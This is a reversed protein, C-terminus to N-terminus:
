RANFRSLARVVENASELCDRAGGEIRGRRTMTPSVVLAQFIIGMQHIQGLM